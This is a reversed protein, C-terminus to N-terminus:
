SGIKTEDKEWPFVIWDEKKCLTSFFTPKTVAFDKCFLTATTVREPRKSTMESYAKELTIGSDLIDDILLVSKKEINHNFSEVTPKTNRVNIGKYLKINYLYVDRINLRDSLIRAPIMGGRGISIIVNFQMHRDKIQTVIADCKDEIDKWTLHIFNM